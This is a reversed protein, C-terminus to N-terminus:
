AAQPEVDAALERERVAFGAAGLVVLAFAVARLAGLVGGPLSERYVAVGAAIPLANTLLTTVGVTAFPGGRQFSLQLAVFALGHAALVAPVAFLWLGGHVAAKTAVDGAAYLLGAAVGLGAGRALLRPGFAAAVAAVTGSVALWAVVPAPSPLRGTTSGGALSIGLLLLGTAAVGVALGERHALGVGGRSVLLALLGVGGASCAQVLSLPAVALAAVYFAWGAIGIFFGALWRLNRMLLVLSRLPRRLTLPPLSAAARHQTFFGWNLAGTSLLALVLGLALKM